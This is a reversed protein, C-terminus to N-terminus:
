SRSKKSGAKDSDQGFLLWEPSIELVKCIAALEFDRLGRVGREIESISTQSIEIGHDVSLAAALEVQDLERDIRSLKIRKGCINAKM